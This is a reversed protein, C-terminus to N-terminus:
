VMVTSALRLTDVKIHLKVGACINHVSKSLNKSLVVMKLVHSEYEVFVSVEVEFMELLKNSSERLLSSQSSEVDVESPACLNLVLPQFSKSFSEWLVELVKLKPDHVTISNSIHTESM